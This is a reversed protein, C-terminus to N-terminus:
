TGNTCIVTAVATATSDTNDTITCGFTGGIGLGGTTACDDTSTTVTYGAPFSGSALFNALGSGNAVCANTGDADVAGGDGVTVISAAAPTVLFKGYNIASAASIESAIGSVAAAKAEGSLDQFKGLATVGLIGLLVIVVVLEILTFGSQTRKMYYHKM